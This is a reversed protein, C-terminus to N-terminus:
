DNRKAPEWRFPFRAEELSLGVVEIEKPDNTGLGLDAAMALHNDGPFPGTAAKALPDCGMVTTAVADTCVPNRGMLFLGPQQAKLDLWPGEGGSVTEVGDIIALDIPRIGVMDATVRPVRYSPRRPGNPDLEQPVGDAPREKGEHFVHVRASQSKEDHDHQAYLATPTIGFNNKMSLTVGATAHNKLKALSVNVDCDVYSHNLLYAPYLSGGGPVKVETYRMGQGLNRTDEFEVKAKLAALAKLDWDAGQVYEELPTLQYTGELFRIRKAGARDLLTAAALVVNPHVHYTRGSPLGVAKQRVDGTLNVKVAVTKGSVLKGLGGLQDAMSNLRGLVDDPDYSRCRAISVPSTPNKPGALLRGPRLLGLASAGALAAAGQLFQRRTPNHRM